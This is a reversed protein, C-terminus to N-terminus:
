HFIRMDNHVNKEHVNHETYYNECALIDMAIFVFVIIILKLCYNHKDNFM